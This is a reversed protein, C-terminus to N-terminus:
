TFAADEILSDGVKITTELNQLRHKNRATKLWLSLRSIEVLEANLDVGYINRTLIEDYFDFDVKEGLALLRDVARRYEAALLDFAAVLFAGSGCAPDVIRLGRLAAAYEQWFARESAVGDRWTIPNGNSPLTAETAHTALLGAFREELTKGVTREALFRTVVDPTYVVGERKRKSVKPPTEGCSEARMRELDTVSQEFIHGLVTVPVDSRYDWQGLSALETVLHDPLVVTDGAPDLAFLGGNYAWIGREKNGQDVERFLTQFNKWLPEPLWENRAKSARELLRDPLLNTREAFAIFLIRDLLKQALEIAAAHALKPGGAPDVLFAILRERMAKYEDYLKNTVDKYANDTDRLLADTAGGLLRDASLILWLRAHEVPDDLRALNFMEYADRGRGFGYLRIEICNSVLVWRSGPADIAYDWAQQVPSRGRGAPIADLDETAPGKLEFPAVIEEAGGSAGFRGLAVDVAGRRIPREFALTYPNEPDFTTYGLIEHLM